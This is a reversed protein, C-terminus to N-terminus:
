GNADVQITTKIDNAHYLQIGDFTTATKSKLRIRKREKMM